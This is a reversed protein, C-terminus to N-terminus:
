HLSWVQCIPVPDFQSPFSHLALSLDCELNPCSAINKCQGNSKIGMMICLRDLICAIINNSGTTDVSWAMCLYEISERHNECPFQFSKLCNNFAKGLSTDHFEEPLWCNLSPMYNSSLALPFYMGTSKWNPFVAKWKNYDLNTDTLMYACVDLLFTQLKTEPFHYEILYQTLERSPKTVSRHLDFAAEGLPKGSINSCKKVLLKISRFLM